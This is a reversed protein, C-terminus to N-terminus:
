IADGDGLEWAQKSRAHEALRFGSPIEYDPTGPQLGNLVAESIRSVRYNKIAEEGPARGALYWHQNLFFLGMPEVERRPPGDSGRSRSVFFCRRGDGPPGRWAP